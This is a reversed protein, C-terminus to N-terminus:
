KGAAADTATEFLHRSLREREATAEEVRRQLDQAKRGALFSVVGFLPLLLLAPHLRALLVGSAGLQVAVRLLGATANTMWGLMSREERLLDLRDRHQPLEHHEIGPTDAMLHILRRDVEAGAKEAVSFLLDIYYLGNLLGLGITFSLLAAAALAGALDRSVAADVLLKSGYALIPYIMSMLAGSLLFLAARWPAVRFSFGMLARFGRLTGQM